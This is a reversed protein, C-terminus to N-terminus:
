APAPGLPGVDDAVPAAREKLEVVVVHSVRVRENDLIVHHLEHDTAIPDNM